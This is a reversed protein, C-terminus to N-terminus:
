ATKDQRQVDINLCRINALRVAEERKREDLAVQEGKQRNDELYYGRHKARNELCRAETARDLKLKCREQLDAFESDIQEIKNKSERRLEARFEDLAEKINHKRINCSAVMTLVNDNGKYGAQKAAELGTVGTIVAQVFKEQKITLPRNAMEKDKNM